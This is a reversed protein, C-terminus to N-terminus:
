IAVILLIIDMPMMFACYKALDKRGPPLPGRRSPKRFMGAKDGIEFIYEIPAMFSKYNRYKQSGKLSPYEHGLSRKSNAANVSLPAAKVERSAERHVDTSRGYSSRKKYSRGEPSYSRSRKNMGWDRSARDVELSAM